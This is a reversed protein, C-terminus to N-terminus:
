ISILNTNIYAENSIQQQLIANDYVTTKDQLYWFLAEQNDLLIKMFHVDFYGNKSGINLYVGEIAFDKYFPFDPTILNQWLSQLFPIQNQLSINKEDPTMFLTDCSALVHGDVSLYIQQCNPFCSNKM